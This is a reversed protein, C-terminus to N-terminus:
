NRFWDLKEIKNLKKIQYEKKSADSKNICSKAFLLKKFGKNHVYKSGKGLKHAEMRKNIDKTIGTYYSNDNCELIYVFWFSKSNM